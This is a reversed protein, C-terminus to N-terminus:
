NNTEMNKLGEAEVIDFKDMNEELYKIGEENAIGRIHYIFLEKIVSEMRFDSSAFMEDSYMNEIRSIQIRTIIEEKLEARYLGESKGRKLNALVSEYMGNRRNQLVKQNLDPYYKKLDYDFSPSYRKMMDIMLRNVEFLEAIANEGMPQLDNICARAREMEFDLVKNVLEKKDSVFLYLTKKSIGIERSIDDMTISKIGFKRFLETVKILIDGFKEM